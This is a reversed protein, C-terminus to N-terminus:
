RMGVPEPLPMMALAELLAAPDTVRRPLSIRALAHGFRLDIGEPDLGIARWGGVEGGQRLAHARLTAAHDANLRRLLEPEAAVLAEAGALDTLLDAGTLEPALRTGGLLDIGNPTVRWLDFSDLTTTVMMKPHRALYRRLADPDEVPAAHGTLTLRVGPLPAGDDGHAQVMLSIRQDALLNRTHLAIRNLRLLPAGSMDTAIPASSVFPYGSGADLTGLAALRALRLVRRAHAGMDADPDGVPPLDHPRPTIPPPTPMSHTVPTM